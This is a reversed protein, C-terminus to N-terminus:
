KTRQPSFTMERRFKKWDSAKTSWVVDTFIQGIGVIVLAWVAWAPVDAAIAAGLFAFPLIKTVIAGAAHMWARSSAPARLYTAYDVKVGPQPRKITGIFWHSFRMGALRGFLLHALGHTTVLVVGFGLLLVVAATNGQLSYAWGVLVLGILTGGVMLINGLWLPVTVLAWAKSAARDIRGIRDAHREVLAPDSKVATVAKWFGSPGLPTGATVAREADDLIAEIRSEDV